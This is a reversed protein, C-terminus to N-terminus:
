LTGVVCTNNYFEINEQNSNAIEGLSLVGWVLTQTPYVSAIAKLEKPYDQDLLYFRSICDIICVSSFSPDNKDDLSLRAAEKAAHIIEKPECTLISLVSNPELNGVLFINKGDTSLPERVLFDKNYRMLGLPHRQSIKFFPTKQFRLATESEIITKYVEFADHYNIKEIINDHCQTAILPGKLSKWGHKVGIGIKSSSALVIASNMYFRNQDFIVPEQILNTKGAGAGILKCAEPLREYFKELFNDIPVCFGDVIALITQSQEHMLLTHIESLDIISLSTDKSLKLLLIGSSYVKHKFIVRPFLAGCLTIGEKTPLELFPTGEAIMMLYSGQKLAKTASEMSVHFSIHDFM